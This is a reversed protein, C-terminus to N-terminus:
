PLTITRVQGSALDTVEVTQIYGVKETGTQVLMFRVDLVARGELDAGFYEPVGTVDGVDQVGLGAANLAERVTPLELAAQVKSLVAKASANGMTAQTFAQISVLLERAGSVTQTIEEGAPPSGATLSRKVAPTSGRHLLDGVRILIHDGAPADTDQDGFLVLDDIYGSAPQVWARIANELAEFNIAVVPM